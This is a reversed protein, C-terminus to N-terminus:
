FPVWIFADNQNRYCEGIGKYPLLSIKIILLTDRGLNFIWSNIILVIPMIRCNKEDDDTVYECLKNEISEFWIVREQEDFKKQELSPVLFLNQM